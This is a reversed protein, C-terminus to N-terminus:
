TAIDDHFGVLASNWYTLLTACFLADWCDSSTYIYLNCFVHVAQVVSFLFVAGFAIAQSQIDRVTDQVAWLGFKVIVFVATCTEHFSGVAGVQYKHYSM